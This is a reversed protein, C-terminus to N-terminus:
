QRCTSVHSSQQWALELTGCPVSPRMTRAALSPYCVHTSNSRSPAQRLLLVQARAQSRTHLPNSGRRESDGKEKRNWVRPCSLSVHLSTRSQLNERSRRPCRASPLPYAFMPSSGCATSTAAFGGAFTWPAPQPGDRDTGSKLNDRLPRAWIRASVGSDLAARM